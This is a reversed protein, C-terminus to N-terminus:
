KAHEDIWTTVWLLPANWNITIENTSWAEIHDVFCKQPACGALGAAKAYPDQLGSNPGGSLAGPPPPPFTPVAQRAWFRHHPNELPREGYGTVYSKAMANRGLIYDLSLVVGDMYKQDKTFDHALAFVLANNIVFSNSGWPYGGDTDVRMPHRYGEKEIIAHFADAVNQIQTRYEAANLKSPVVALSIKGLADVRQWTMATATGSSDGGATESLKKDLPSDTLEKQYAANGTTIFLEAAAWYFEDTVNADDYPGGGVTDAQVAYVAPNKKAAAWAKEAAVLCKKAFAADIPKWIRAAQAATAALNLTAATSVPRLVRPQTDDAPSLGLATWKLDHMKHHVMGANPKDDPVQMKLMFEMQWRAEDLLDPVKNGSEPILDKKDGFTVLDGKLHKAREYQNMMTWVSIGGNVVYKGHDGADYWGGTVDLSYDCGTGAGCKAVDKPHGAARTWQEQGAYPMKIEIGSRNHYFYKFADIKMTAYIENSVGFPDSKDEGIQLVFGDGTGKFDSFDVIHVSDGSAKDAGHPVTKGAAVEKGGADLLKWDLPASAASVVAAIKKQKPLYGVQNVRVNPLAVKGAKPQPTFEPDSLVIDDFCIDIPGEGQIMHGGFHFALEVTPDDPHNVDFEYAYEQKEPTLKILKTWYDTYPAGAMGFKGTMKTDRSAWAKFSITYHHGKQAVMERHRIQADWREKGGKEVRACLAGDKVQAEGLAASDFSTMWPLMVGDNFDSQQLLNHAPDGPADAELKNAGGVRHGSGACASLVFPLIISASLTAFRM